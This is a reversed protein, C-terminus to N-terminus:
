KCEPIAITAKALRACAADKKATLSTITAQLTSNESVSAQLKAEAQAATDVAAKETQSVQSQPPKATQAADLRISHGLLVLLAAFLATGLAIPVIKTM